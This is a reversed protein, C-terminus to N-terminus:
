GAMTHTTAKTMTNNQQGIHHRLHRLHKTAILLLQGREGADHQSQAAKHLIKPQPTQQQHRCERCTAM